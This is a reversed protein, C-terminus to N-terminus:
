KDKAPRGRKVSAAQNVLSNDLTVEKLESVVEDLKPLETTKEVIVEATTDPVSIARTLIAEYFTGYSQPVRENKEFDFSYGEKIAEQVKQAFEVIGAAGIFKTEESM